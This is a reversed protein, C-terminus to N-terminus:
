SIPLDDQLASSKDYTWTTPPAVAEENKSSSDDIRQPTSPPQSDSPFEFIPHGTGELIKALAFEVMDRIFFPLSQALPERLELGPFQAGLGPGVKHGRRFFFRDGDRRAPREVGPGNRWFCCDLRDLCVDNKLLLDSVQYGADIKRGLGYSDVDSPCVM